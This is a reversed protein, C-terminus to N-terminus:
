SVADLTRMERLAKWKAGVIGVVIITGIGGGVVTIIPGLVAAIAGSEFAGLENSLDIFISNVANVRGRMVDPTRLQVLSSRIVVSVSDFAGLTFLAFMSLTFSKSLGFVITAVGFGAVVVLLTAGARQLPRRHALWLATIMAGVSPATRLWGLGEPGVHLIDKAYVPLLATAGGFLVAFLDLTIAALILPDAFVYRVGAALVERSVPERSRVQGHSRLLTFIVIYIVSLGIGAVYVPTASHWLAILFGSLAPGLVAAIQFATSNWTVGNTFVSVPVVQALLASQAPGVFALGVGSFFLAAYILWVPGHFYTLVALWLSMVGAVAQGIRVIHRRDYRDAIVGSLFSFLIKPTVSALGTLGLALTSHTREYLQWGVAVDQMLYGLVELFRGAVFLRFDRYRLALYPDHTETSAAMAM